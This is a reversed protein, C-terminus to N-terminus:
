RRRVPAEPQPVIPRVEPGRGLWLLWAHLCRWQEASCGDRALLLDRRRDDVTERLRLWVLRETACWRVIRVPRGVDPVIPGSAQWRGRGLEDVALRGWSLGRTGGRWAAWCAAVGVAALAAGWPPAALWAAWGFGAGALAVMAAHVARLGRTPAAELRFAFSM